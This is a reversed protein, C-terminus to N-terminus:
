QRKSGFFGSPLHEGLSVLAQVAAYSAADKFSERGWSGDRNQANVLWPLMRAMALKAVPEDCRSFIQLFFLARDTVELGRLDAMREETLNLVAAFEWLRIKPAHSSRGHLKRQKQASEIIYCQCGSVFAEKGVEWRQTSISSQLALSVAPKGAIWSFTSAGTVENPIPM